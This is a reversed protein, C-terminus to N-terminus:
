LLQGDRNLNKKEKSIGIFTGKVRLYGSDTVTKSKEYVVLSKLRMMIGVYWILQGKIQLL